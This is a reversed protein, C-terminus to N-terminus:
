IRAVSVAIAPQQWFLAQAIRLQTALTAEFIEDPGDFYQEYYTININDTEVTIAAGVHNTGGGLKLEVSQSADPSQVTV